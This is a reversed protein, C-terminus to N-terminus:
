LLALVSPKIFRALSDASEDSFDGAHDIRECLPLVQKTWSVGDRVTCPAVGRLPAVVDEAGGRVALPWPKRSKALSTNHLRGLSAWHTSALGSAAMFVKRNFAQRDRRHAPEWCLPMALRPGKRWGQHITRSNWVIMSGARLPVRRAERVYRENVRAGEPGQLRSLEVYQGVCELGECQMLTDFIHTHSGPWIVTTSVSADMLDWVPLVSQYVMWDRVQAESTNQDAHGWVWDWVEPRVGRPAFFVYDMGVVLESGSVGYLVEFVRRARSNCRMNWAFRGQPLSYSNYQQNEACRGPWVEPLQRDTSANITNSACTVAEIMESTCEEGGLKCPSALFNNMTKFDCVSRLDAGWLAIAADVEASTLVNNVICFGHEKMVEHLKSETEAFDISYKDMEQPTFLPFLLRSTASIRWLQNDGEHVPWGIIAAGKALSGDEVDLGLWPSARSRISVCGDSSGALQWQQALCAPNYPRRLVQSSKAARKTSALELAFCTGGTGGEEDADCKITVYGSSDSELLFRQNTTNFFRFQHVSTDGAELALGSSKSMLNVLM